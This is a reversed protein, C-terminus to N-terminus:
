LLSDVVLGCCTDPAIVAIWRSNMGAFMATNVTESELVSASSLDPL